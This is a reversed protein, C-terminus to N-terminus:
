DPPRPMSTSQVIAEQTRTCSEWARQFTRPEDAVIGVDHNTGGSPAPLRSRNAVSVAVPMGRRAPDTLTPPGAFAQACGLWDRAAEGRATLQTDEMHRRQTVVLCFDVAPGIIQNGIDEAGWTWPEGEPGELEVRVDAVPAAKGRVMYSFHRTRVGMHCVHRLRNTPARVSLASDVIDQGHAWYEMLRASAFSGVSMSPGYWAVKRSPDHARLAASLEERTARWRDAIDPDITGSGLELPGPSVAAPDAMARRAEEEFEDPETLAQLARKDYYWLHRLVDGVAWGAAPTPRTLDAYKALEDLDAQEARLDDLLSALEMIRRNEHALHMRNRDRVPLLEVPSASTSPSQAVVRGM